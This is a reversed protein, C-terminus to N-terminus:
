AARRWKASYGHDDIRFDFVEAVVLPRRDDRRVMKFRCLGGPHVAIVILGAVLGARDYSLTQSALRHENRAAFFPHTQVLSFSDGPVNGCLGALDVIDGTRAIRHNPRQGERQRGTGRHSIRRRQGVIGRTDDDAHDAGRGYRCLLERLREAIVLAVGDTM